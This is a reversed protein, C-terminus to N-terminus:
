AVGLKAARQDRSLGASKHTRKPKVTFEKGTLKKFVATNAEHEVTLLTIDAEIQELRDLIRDLKVDVVESGGNEAELTKYEGRLDAAQDELYRIRGSTAYCHMYALNNQDWETPQHFAIADMKIKILDAIKKTM